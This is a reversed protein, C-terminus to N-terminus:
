ERDKSGAEKCGLNDVDNFIGSLEVDRDEDLVLVPGPGALREQAQGDDPDAVRPREGRIV